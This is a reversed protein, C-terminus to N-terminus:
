KNQHRLHRNTRMPTRLVPHPRCSPQQPNAAGHVFTSLGRNCSDWRWSDGAEASNRQGGSVEAPSRKPQSKAKSGAGAGCFSAPRGSRCRRRSQYPSDAACRYARPILRLRPSGGEDVSCCGAAASSCAEGPVVSASASLDAGLVDSCIIWFNCFM